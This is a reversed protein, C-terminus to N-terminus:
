DLESIWVVMMDMLEVAFTEKLSGYEEVTCTECHQMLHNLGGMSAIKSGVGRYTKFVALNSVPPVQIDESGTAAFLPIKLKKLYDHTNFQMFSRAWDNNIFALNSTVFVEKTMSEKYEQNASDYKKTLLETLPEVAKKENYNNIINTAGLYISQNWRAEEETAGSKIPILYQQEILVDAGNTGVSSLQMIFDIKKYSKAAILTHMGGESHGALGIKNTKYKKEKRLYKVCAVVDSAFDSLDAYAYIGSSEGVGRDDFRLSGIGNTALHDAIVWFPKHGVIECDRNQPGSGSALVVISTSESFDKPLTLTAGIINKGNKIKVKEITYDFPGKPEQPRNLTANKPREKTFLVDWKIGNQNMEGKITSQKASYVGQFSLKIAKWKFTIKKDEIKHEDVIIPGYAGDSESLFISSPSTSKIEIKINGPTGMILFSTYWEGDIQANLTLPFLALILVITKM